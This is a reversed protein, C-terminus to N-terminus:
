GMLKLREPLRHMKTSPVQWVLIAVYLVRCGKTNCFDFRMFSDGWSDFGLCVYCVVGVAPWPLVFQDRFPLVGQVASSNRSGYAAGISGMYFLRGRFYIFMVVCIPVLVEWVIWQMTRGCGCAWVQVVQSELFYGPDSLAKSVSISMSSWDAKNRAKLWCEETYSQASNSSFKDGNYPIMSVSICFFSM